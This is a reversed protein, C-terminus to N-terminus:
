VIPVPGGIVDRRAMPIGDCDADAGYSPIGWVERHM